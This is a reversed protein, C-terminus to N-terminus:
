PDQVVFTIPQKRYAKVQRGNQIAPTWKGSKKIVRVAEGEMGNGLNTIAKVDSVNGDKDVVFQVVVNYTGPNAGNEIPVDPRLNRELFNRWAGTGGPYAAEVEVKTFIDPEKEEPKKVEVIGKGADVAAPPTIIGADKVGEQNQVGIKTDRLEEVAPPPEKVEEDKVVKPPTFAKMEVKPPPPAKPPPPPPPPPPEDPKKEEQQIDSITVETQKVNVPANKKIASNVVVAVTILASAAVAIGLAKWMRKSYSKRLQYAGYDKNRGEFLIDLFDSSLIKNAEM